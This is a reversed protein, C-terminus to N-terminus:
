KYQYYSPERYWKINKGYIVGYYPIEEGEKLLDFYKSCAQYTYEMALPNYEVGLVLLDKFLILLEEPETKMQRKSIKILGKKNLLGM